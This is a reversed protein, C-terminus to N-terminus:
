VCDRRGSRPAAGGRRERQERLGALTGRCESAEPPVEDVALRGTSFSTVM